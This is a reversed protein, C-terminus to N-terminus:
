YSHMLILTYSPLSGLGLPVRIRWFQPNKPWLVRFKRHRLRWFIHSISTKLFFQSNKSNKINQHWLVAFGFNNCSYPTSVRSCVLPLFRLYRSFKKLVKKSIKTFNTFLLAIFLSKQPSRHQLIEFIKSFDENTAFFLIEVSPRLNRFYKYRPARVRGWFREPMYIGLIPGM